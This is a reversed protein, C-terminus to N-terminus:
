SQPKDPTAHGHQTKDWYFPRLVLELFAKYSALAGMTFYLPLTLVWPLLFRHERGSVARLGIAVNTLETLVFAGAILAIMPEGILTHLPHSWGLPIMWFTWILPACVFQAITGIFFAQLGLFRYLGLDSLLRRPRRMHVLYTVMFGKLWRSRQKVWPWPRCNAEEHTVTSILETRYGFRALRLGLDADETVNHADWGGLEELPARKFFLTTGGLPIVLGLRAIGPLVVRWWGAYEITFCRAIWNSRPNYYDLIGQLCVVDDAAQAFQAAVQDLQDPAPADEADWVGIIDGDCFDLAYNLARPKTTVDGNDPVEIVKMWPPLDTQALTAQTVTDKEELALVVELLPKPYTLRTLRRILASAIETEHFLPVIVSIKPLRNEPEPVSLLFPSQASPTEPRGHLVQACFAAIKLVTIMCLSLSAFLCAVAFVLQPWIALALLAAGGVLAPKRWNSKSWSRCSLARPVRREARDALYTAHHQALACMIQQESAVVALIRHNPQPLDDRLASLRDPRSTAVVVTKGIMTWPIVRNRLWFEPPMLMGLTADPPEKALDIVHLGHQAAVVELVRHEPVMGEAVMIEGLPANMRSQLQLAQMLQGSTLDGSDVLLRGLPRQQSLAVPGERPTDRWMRSDTM